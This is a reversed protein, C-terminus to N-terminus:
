SSLFKTPIPKIFKSSWSSDCVAGLIAVAPYPLITMVSSTRPIGISLIQQHLHTKLRILIKKQDKLSVVFFVRFLIWYVDSLVMTITRQMSGAIPNIM